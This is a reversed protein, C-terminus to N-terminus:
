ADKSELMVTEDPFVVSVKYQNFAARLRGALALAKERIEDPTSPFRPYNIFGIMCGPEGGNTYIYRTPTVTVCLGVEDCYASAIMEADELTHLKGTDREKFGVYIIATFTSVTKM